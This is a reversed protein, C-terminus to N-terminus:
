FHLKANSGHLHHLLAQITQGLQYRKKYTTTFIAISSM